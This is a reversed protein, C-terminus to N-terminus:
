YREEVFRNEVYSQSQWDAKGGAIVRRRFTPLLQRQFLNLEPHEWVV